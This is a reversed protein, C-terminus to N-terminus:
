QITPSNIADHVKREFELTVNRFCVKEFICFVKRRFFLKQLYFNHYKEYKQEFCINQSATRVLVWLRHKKLLLLFFFIIYVM